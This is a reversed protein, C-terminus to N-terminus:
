YTFKRHKAGMFAENLEILLLGSHVQARKHNKQINQNIVLKSVKSENANLPHNSSLISPVFEMFWIVDHIGM